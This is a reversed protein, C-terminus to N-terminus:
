LAEKMGFRQVQKQKTVHTSGMQGNNSAKFLQSIGTETEPGDTCKEGIKM